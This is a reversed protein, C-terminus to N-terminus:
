RYRDPEPLSQQAELEAPTPAIAGVSMVDHPNNPALPVIPPAFHITFELNPVVEIPSEGRELARAARVATSKPSGSPNTARRPTIV